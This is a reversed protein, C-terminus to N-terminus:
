KNSKFLKFGREAKSIDSPFLSLHEKLEEALSRLDDQNGSKLELEIEHIREQNGNSIIFGWDLVLEISSNHWTIDAQYRTFNTEFVKVLDATEIIEPWAECQKLENLNLKNESLGWEWEGRQSLGNVSQGATKFTQLFVAEGRDNIKKRIRLAVKNKNLLYESTDFYANELNKKSVTYYCGLNGLVSKLANIQPETFDSEFALKMEIETAVSIGKKYKENNKRLM